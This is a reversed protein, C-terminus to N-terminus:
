GDVLILLGRHTESGVIESQRSIASRKRLHSVTGEPELGMEEGITGPTPCALRALPQPRLHVLHDENGAIM